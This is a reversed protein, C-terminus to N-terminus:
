GRADLDNDEDLHSSGLDSSLLITELDRKALEDLEEDDIEADEDDSSVDIADETSEGTKEVGYLEQFGVVAAKVAM